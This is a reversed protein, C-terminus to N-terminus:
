ASVITKFGGWIMRMGDFLPKEWMKAMDKDNMVKNMVMDRHSKSKYVVYVFVAVEGSKLKVSRPFSTSKGKDLKDGQAEVYELAGYKKWIKASKKAMASYAKLNKKPVPIVLGDIYGAM